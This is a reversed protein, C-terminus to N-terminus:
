RATLSTPESSALRWRTGTGGFDSASIGASCDDDEHLSSGAPRLFRLQGRLRTHRRSRRPSYKAFLPSPADDVPPATQFASSHLYTDFLSSNLPHSHILHNLLHEILHLCFGGVHHADDLCASDSFLAVRNTAALVPVKHDGTTRGHRKTAQRVKLHAHALAAGKPAKVIANGADFILDDGGFTAPLKGDYVHNGLGFGFKALLENLAPVNSGAVAPTWRVQTNDDFFAAQHLLLQSHWDSVVLLSLGEREVDATLKDIEAPEFEDEPDIILLAAYHAADFCTAAHELVDVFYGAHRLKLFLSRFNTYPLDGNWDLLDGQQRLSDRAVFAPPYAISRSADWLLRRSRPPQPAIAVSVPVLVVSRGARATEVEISLQGIARRSSVVDEVVHLKVLLSGVWPWHVKDTDQDTLVRLASTDAQFTVRTISFAVGAANLLTVGVVPAAGAGEGQYYLPQECYPAFRPCDDLHLEAPYATVRPSDYSVACDLVAAVADIAGAGQVYMSVGPIPKATEILCQKVMAPNILAKNPIASAVLAAAGAVSPSAVSTGHMARCARQGLVAGLVGAAPATVDPKFRTGSLAPGRSSFRAIELQSFTTGGVGVVEPMDAPSNLTGWTPGDNGIASVVVVGAAAVERIKDVFPKDAFDPGGVSLNVIQVRKQFLIYNFADLFWSTFSVQDNTFVRHVHVKARPAFGPCQKAQGAVLSTVFSGHGLKDELTPESTWNVREVVDVGHFHSDLSSKMGTDFIAISANAGDFGHAWLASAQLGPAIVGGYKREDARRSSEDYDSAIGRWNRFLATMNSSVQRKAISADPIADIFDSAYRLALLASEHALGVVVFDTPNIRRRRRRVWLPGERGLARAVTSYHVAAKAYRDFRVIYSRYVDGNSHQAVFLMAAWRPKCLRMNLTLIFANHSNRKLHAFMTWLVKERAYVCALRVKQYSM